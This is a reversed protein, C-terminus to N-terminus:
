NLDYQDFKSFRDFFTWYVAFKGILAQLHPKAVLQSNGIENNAKQNQILQNATMQTENTENM